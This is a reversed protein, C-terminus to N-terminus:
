KKLHLKQICTNLNEYHDNMFTIQHEKLNKFVNREKTIRIKEFNYFSLDINEMNILDLAILFSLAYRFNEEINSNLIKSLEIETLTSIIEKEMLKKIITEYITQQEKKAKIAEYTIFSNMISEYNSLFINKALLYLTKLSAIKQEKLFLISLFDFYIGEVEKIYLSTKNQIDFNFFLGHALEHNITLFDNLTNTKSIQFFPIYTPYYICFFNGYCEKEYDVIQFYHNQKETYQKILSAYNKNPIWNFFDNSMSFLDEITLSTKPIKTEEYYAKMHSFSNISKIITERIKLPVEMYSKYVEYYFPNTKIENKQFPSFSYEKKNTITNIINQLYLISEKKKRNEEKSQPVIKKIEKQLKIIQNKDWTYKM